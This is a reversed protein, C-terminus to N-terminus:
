ASARRKAALQAEAWLLVDDPEANPHRATVDDAAQRILAPRRALPSGDQEALALAVDAVSPRAEPFAEFHAELAAVMVATELAQRLASTTLTTTSPAVGLSDVAIAAADRLNAPLRMSTNVTEDDSSDLLENIRDLAAGVDM